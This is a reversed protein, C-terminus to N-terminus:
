GRGVRELHQSTLFTELHCITEDYEFRAKKKRAISEAPALLISCDQRVLIERVIPYSPRQAVACLESGMALVAAAVLGYPASFVPTRLMGLINARMWGHCKCFLAPTRPKRGM